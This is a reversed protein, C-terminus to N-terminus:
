RSGSLRATMKLSFHDPFVKLGRIHLWARVPYSPNLIM